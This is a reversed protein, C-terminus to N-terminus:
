LYIGAKLLMTELEQNDYNKVFNLFSISYEPFTKTLTQTDPTSWLINADNKNNDIFKQIQEKTWSKKNKTETTEIEDTEMTEEETEKIQEEVLNSELIAKYTMMQEHDKMKNQLDKITAIINQEKDKLINEKLNLITRVMNTIQSQDSIDGVNKKIYDTMDKKIKLRIASEGTYNKIEAIRLINTYIDHPLELNDTLLKAFDNKGISYRSIIINMFIDGTLSFSTNITNGAHHYTSYVTAYELNMFKCVFHMVNYNDHYIRGKFVIDYKSDKFLSLLEQAEKSYTLFDTVAKKDVFIFKANNDNYIILITTDDRGHRLNNEAIWTLINSPITIPEIVPKVNDNNNNNPTDFKDAYAAVVSKLKKFDM